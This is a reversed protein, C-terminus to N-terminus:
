LDIITIKIGRYENFNLDFEDRLVNYDSYSIKLEKLSRGHKEYYKQITEDLIEKINLIYKEGKLNISM